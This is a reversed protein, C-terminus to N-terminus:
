KKNRGHLINVETTRTTVRKKGMEIKLFKEYSENEM